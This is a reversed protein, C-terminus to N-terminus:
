IWQFYGESIFVLFIVKELSLFLFNIALLHLTFSIIFEKPLFFIAVSPLVSFSSLILFLLLLLYTPLLLHIITIIIINTNFLWLSNFYMVVSACFTPSIYFKSNFYELLKTNELFNCFHFNINSKLLAINWNKTM